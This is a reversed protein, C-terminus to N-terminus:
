SALSLLYVTCKSQRSKCKYVVIAQGVEPPALNIHFSCDTPCLYTLRHRSGYFLHKISLTNLRTCLSLTKQIYLMDVKMNKVDEKM